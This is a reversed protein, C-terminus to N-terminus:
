NAPLNHIIPQQNAVPYSATLLNTSPEYLNIDTDSMRRRSRRSSSRSIMPTLDRRKIRRCCVKIMSHLLLIIILLILITCSIMIYLYGHEKFHIKISNAERTMYQVGKKITQVVKTFNKLDKVKLEMEDKVPVAVNTIPIKINVIKLISSLEKLAPANIMKIASCSFNLIIRAAAPISIPVDKGSCEEIISSPSNKSVIIETTEAHSIIQLDEKDDLNTLQLVPCHEIIPKREMIAKICEDKLAPLADM